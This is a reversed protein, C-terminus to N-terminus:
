WNVRLSVVSAYKNNFKINEFHLATQRMKKNDRSIQWSADLASLIHNVMVLTTGWTSLKYAKNSDDRQQEYDLRISSVSTNNNWGPDLFGIDSDVWGINFQHYKGIMEYYQQDKNVHLSHSYTEKEYARLADMDTRDIGSNNSIWDWYDSEIWNQDAFSRFDAKLDDGEKKKTFYMTWGVAEVGLFVGAKLYKGSYIQGAGPIVASLLLGKAPSKLDQDSLEAPYQTQPSNLTLYSYDGASLCTVLLLFILGTRIM